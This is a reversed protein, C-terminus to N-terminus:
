KKVSKSTLTLMLQPEGFDTLMFRFEDERVGTVLVNGSKLDGHIITQSHLYALGTAIQCLAEEMLNPPIDAVDGIVSVMQRLSHIKHKKHRGDRPGLILEKSALQLALAGKSLCLGLCKVVNVHDLKAVELAANIIMKQNQPLEVNDLHFIKIAIENSKYKAKYVSGNAGKGIEHVSSWDIEDEAILLKPPIAPLTNKSLVSLDSQGFDSELKGRRSM